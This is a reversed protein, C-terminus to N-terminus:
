STKTGNTHEKLEKHAKSHASLANKTLFTAPCHECRFQEQVEEAREVIEPQAELVALEAVKSIHARLVDNLAFWEGRMRQKSFAKHAEAEHEGYEWGAVVIPSAIGVQFDRARQVLNRTTGIKIANPLDGQIYYVVSKGAEPWIPIAALREVPALQAKLQAVEESEKEERQEKRAQAKTEQAARRQKAREESERRAELSVVESTIFVLLSIMATALLWTIGQLPDLMTLQSVTLERGSSTYYGEMVNAMGSVALTFVLGFWMKWDQVMSAKYLAIRVTILVVM